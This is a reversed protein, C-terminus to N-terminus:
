NFFYHGKIAIIGAITFRDMYNLINVYCLVIISALERRSLKSNNNISSSQEGDDPIVALELTASGSAEISKPLHSPSSIVSASRNKIDIVSIGSDDM